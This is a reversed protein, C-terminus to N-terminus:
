QYRKHRRGKRISSCNNCTSEPYEDVETIQDDTAKYGCYCVMTGDYELQVLGNPRVEHKVGTTSEAVKPM